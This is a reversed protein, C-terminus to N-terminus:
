EVVVSDLLVQLVMELASKAEGGALAIPPNQLIQERLEAIAVIDSGDVGDRGVSGRFVGCSRPGMQYIPPRSPLPSVTSLSSAAGHTPSLTTTDDTVVSHERAVAPAAGCNGSLLACVALSALFQRMVLERM